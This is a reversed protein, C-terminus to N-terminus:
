KDTDKERIEVRRIKGSITKPLETVFEIIRPYKYPATVKKVHDQLERVLDDSPTYNKTLVVTAKVVQGRDPDPVATIACELVAPHELLASEVEFPGIRYGSSKIVDDARGVFWFYGDEDRWAMDGTYYVGDHWVKRTLNEDRYYGGFIGVPMRKDTRVVIQGEEGVECSNGNEDIIDIDYGPSPKGMSGPKPEMWPFTGLTVTLETQGYGEMLKLGTMKLFQNYVEPNLPEGAVACYKLKSLDYKSLDEKIFFRYITPPACFTTVGHKCIVSLLEKPVFKNYDYVFVASGCLWQGYIKGWVAKAWGTDAVTLHLGDEMVNQWYKATLIHGLPYTFDHRVMKPMGTTGSTFYLLMIDGNKAADEGEPKQFEPSASEIEANFDYWGEKCGGVLAKAKLSPSKAMSEEVHQIVEDEAVCVIMKIDAANNRYVIDKTTLLHTAPICIAGLKHLALIAFWFEYRRKLVLMVPDSKKIGAKRFFNATKDSYYKLQGFTFNAENGNEDCWVIAIKDPTKEAIEDVVDYAFNFNEPVNIKFNEIFDEYSDFNIKSLYKELM